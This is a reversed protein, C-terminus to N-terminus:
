RVEFVQTMNGAPASLACERLGWPQDTPEQVVDVDHFQLREIRLQALERLRQQAGSRPVLGITGWRAATQWSRSRSSIAQAVRDACL